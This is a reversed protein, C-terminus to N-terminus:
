KQNEMIKVEDGAKVFSGAKAIVSLSADLEKVIALQDQILLLTVTKPIVKNQSDVVWVFNGSQNQQIATYPLALGQVSQLQITGSIFSGIAISPSNELQIQINALRSASDIQPSIIRVKGLFINEIGALKLQVSQGLSIQHLNDEPIRLLAEVENKKAIKFLPEGIKGYDGLTAHREFIIGEEPATITTRRLFLRAEEVRTSAAQYASKAEAISIESVNGSGQLPEIRNLADKARAFESQVLNLQLQATEDDLIALKQGKHVYSGVDVMIEKLRVNSIETFVVIEDRAVAHGTAVIREALTHEYAKVTSVVLIDPATPSAKPHLKKNISYAILGALGLFLFIFIFKLKM